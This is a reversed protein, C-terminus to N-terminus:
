LKVVHAQLAAVRSASAPSNSSGPFRLNCHASITGSCELRAVSHSKTLCPVKSVEDQLSGSTKPTFCSYPWACHSMSTVRANQSALHTSRRLDPTRSYAPWCPSVTEVLFVFILQAHYCPGILGAVRSASIPSDGSGPPQPPNCHVLTMGSIASASLHGYSGSASSSSRSNNLITVLSNPSTRIMTQLDFSHDSLPSISLTRKRSPRASLRPSPFRTSDMAHLYEMHIAGTGATAASPIIDAYPSRQGTLLAMQHYYEAPSVGDTPSLGRTASIMSLSPSSHLSRIYDMYPNIYPHPPSFPSESAAAPNRHPSIRIFPLDPYTPSSSLASPRAVVMGQDAKSLPEESDGRVWWGVAVAVAVGTGELPQQSPQFGTHLPLFVTGLHQPQQHEQLVLWCCKKEESKQFASAPPDSLGPLELDIQAVHPFGMELFIFFLFILSAHHCVDITGAVQPASAPPNRSGPLHLSCHAM